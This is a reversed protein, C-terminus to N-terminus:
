NSHLPNTSPNHCSNCAGTSIATSMYLTGNANKVAPFLGNIDMSETSYFNGKNDIQLTYKLSGQGNAQTYFEVQGGTANGTLQSNSVSGAAVFCGEGNGEAYHCQMCNNGFNHSKNAGSASVNYEDCAGEKECANLAIILCIPAILLIFNKM